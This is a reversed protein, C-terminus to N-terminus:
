TRVLANEAHHWMRFPCDTAMLASRIALRKELANQICDLILDTAFTEASIDDEVEITRIFVPLGAMGM